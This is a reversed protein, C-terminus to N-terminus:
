TSSRTPRTEDSTFLATFVQKLPREDCRDEVAKGHEAGEQSHVVRM